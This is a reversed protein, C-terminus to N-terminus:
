SRGAKRATLMADAFGYCDEAMRGFAAPTDGEQSLASAFMGEAIMGTLAQGAFYDRVSIGEQSWAETDGDKSFPRPFAPGGDDAPAAAHARLVEEAEILLRAGDDYSQSDDERWTKIRDLLPAKM